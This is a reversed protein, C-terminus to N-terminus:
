PVDRTLTYRRTILRRLAISLAGALFAWAFLLSDLVWPPIEVRPDVLAILLFVPLAPAAALGFLAGETVTWSNTPLTPLFISLTTASTVCWWFTWTKLVTAFLDKLARITM